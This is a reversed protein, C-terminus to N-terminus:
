EVQLGQNICLAQCSHEEIFAMEEDSVGSSSINILLQIREQKDTCLTDKQGAGKRWFELSGHVQLVSQKQSVGLNNVTLHNAEVNAEM